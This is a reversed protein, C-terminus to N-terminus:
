HLVIATTKTMAQTLLSSKFQTDKGTYVLFSWLYGSGSECLEYTKIGFKAAKLPLRGKWLTLSEDVSINPGPLFLNQFKHNLHSLV